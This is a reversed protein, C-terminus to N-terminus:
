GYSSEIMLYRGIMRLLVFANSKTDRWNISRYGFPQNDAYKCAIGINQLKFSLNGVKIIHWESAIRAVFLQQESAQKLLEFKYLFEKYSCEITVTNLGNLLNLLKNLADLGQSNSLADIATTLQLDFASVSQYCESRTLSNVQLGQIMALFFETVKKHIPKPAPTPEQMQIHSAFMLLCAILVIAKM